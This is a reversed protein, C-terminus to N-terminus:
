PSQAHLHSTQLWTKYGIKYRSQDPESTFVVQSAGVVVDTLRDDLMERDVTTM